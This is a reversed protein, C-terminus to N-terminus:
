FRGCLWIINAIVDVLAPKMSQTGPLILSSTSIGRGYIGYILTLDHSSPSQMFFEQIAVGQDQSGPVFVLTMLSCTYKGTM